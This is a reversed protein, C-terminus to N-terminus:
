RRTRSIRRHKCYNIKVSFSFVEVKLPAPPPQYFPAEEYPNM